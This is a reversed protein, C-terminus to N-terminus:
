RISKDVEKISAKLINHMPYSHKTNLMRLMPPLQGGLQDRLRALASGEAPCRLLLCCSM